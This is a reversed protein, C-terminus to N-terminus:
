RGDESRCAACRIVGKYPGPNGHICEEIWVNRAIDATQNSAHRDAMVASGDNADQMSEFYPALCAHLDAIEYQREAALRACRAAKDFIGDEYAEYMERHLEIAEATLEYIRDMHRAYARDNEGVKDMMAEFIFRQGREYDSQEASRGFRRPSFSERQGTGVAVNATM